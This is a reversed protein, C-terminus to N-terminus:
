FYNHPIHIDYSTYDSFVVVLVLPYFKCRKAFARVMRQLSKEHRTPRKKHMVQYLDGYLVDHYLRWFVWCSYGMVFWIQVYLTIYRLSTSYPDTDVIWCWGGTDGYSGSFLPLITFAAATGWVFCHLSRPSLTRKNCKATKLRYAICATCYLAVLDGFSVLAAITACGGSGMDAQYAAGVLNAIAKIVEGLMLFSVLRSRPRQQSPFSFVLLSGVLSISAASYSFANILDQNEDIFGTTSSM